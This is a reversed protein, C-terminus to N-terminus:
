AVSWGEREDHTNSYPRRMVADNVNTDRGPTTAPDRDQFFRQMREIAHQLAELQASWTAIDM